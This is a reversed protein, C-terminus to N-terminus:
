FGSERVFISAARYLFNQAVLTLDTSIRVTGRVIFDDSKFATEPRIVVKYIANQATAGGKKDVVAPIGGGFPAALVNRSLQKSATTDITIVKGVVASMGAVEPIFKVLQGVEISEIQSDTVFAEVGAPGPSVIRMMLERSGIWRGAVLDPRLDRVIGSAAARVDLRSKEEAVAGLEAEAEAVQGDLVMLREQQARTAAARLYEARATALSYHANRERLALEASSLRVLIQGSEVRQGAAV